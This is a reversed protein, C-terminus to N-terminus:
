LSIEKTPIATGTLFADLQQELSLSMLESDPVKERAQSHNVVCTVFGFAAVLVAYLLPETLKKIKQVEM